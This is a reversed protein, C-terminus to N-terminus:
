GHQMLHFIYPYFHFRVDLYLAQEFSVWKPVIRSLPTSAMLFPGCPHQHLCGMSEPASPFERCVVQQAADKSTNTVSFFWIPKLQVTKMHVWFNAYM